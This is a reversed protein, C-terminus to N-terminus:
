FMFWLEGWLGGWASIALAAVIIKLIVKLCGNYWNDRLVGKSVAFEWVRETAWWYLAIALIAGVVWLLLHMGFTVM